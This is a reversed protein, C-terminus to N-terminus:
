CVLYSGPNKSLSGIPQKRLNTSPILDCTVFLSQTINPLPASPPVSPLVSPLVPPLCNSPLVSVVEHETLSEFPEKILAASGM